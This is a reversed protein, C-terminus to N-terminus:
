GPEHVVDHANKDQRIEAFAAHRLHDDPTWETFKIQVVLDPKLWVCDKMQKRTLAWRTRRKEPLNAFPCADTKLPKMKVMLERRVHPVFGARVKSAFLLKDGDYYGVIAADFPNGPTAASSL